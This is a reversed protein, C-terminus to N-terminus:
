KWDGKGKSNPMKQKTRNLENAGNQETQVEGEIIKIEAHGQHTIYGEMNSTTTVADHTEHICSIDANLHSITNVIEASGNNTGMDGVTM